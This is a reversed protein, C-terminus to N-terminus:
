TEEPEIREIAKAYCDPCISHSFKAESRDTIYDEVSHWYDKDDRVKKCWACIPLLGQLRKVHGLADELERTRERVRRELSENLAGVEAEARRLELNNRELALARDNLEANALLLSRQSARLQTMLSALGLAMSCMVFLFEQAQIVADRPDFHGFPNRGLTTLILVVSSVLAASLSAVFVNFRAAAYIVFPLLLVPGVHIDRFMGDRSAILMGTVASAGAAVLFDSLPAAPSKRRDTSERWWLSLLLPTVIVLGLADGFWWIRLFELYGTETGRFLSYVFAGFTAAAFAALLPAAAIFKVLDIPRPFGPDFRWRALLLSAITAEAINNVGFLLAEAISFTNWDAAIEASLILAAFPLFGRFRFRIWAALVVGNPPWLIAMGEPMVTLAVGAKAGLFYLLPVLIFDRFTPIRRTGDTL